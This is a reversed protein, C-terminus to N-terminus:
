DTYWYAQYQNYDYDGSKLPVHNNKGFRCTKTNGMKFYSENNRITITVSGDYIDGMVTCGNTPSIYRHNVEDKLVWARYQYGAETVRTVQANTQARWGASVCIIDGVQINTNNGYKAREIKVDEQLKTVTSEVANILEADYKRKTEWNMGRSYEPQSNLENLRASLQARDVTLLPRFELSTRLAIMTAQVPDTLEALQEESVVYFELRAGAQTARIGLKIAVKRLTGAMNQNLYPVSTVALAQAMEKPTLRTAIYFSKSM